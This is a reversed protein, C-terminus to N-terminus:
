DAASLRQMKKKCGLMSAGSSSLGTITSFFNAKTIGTTPPTLPLPKESVAKQM